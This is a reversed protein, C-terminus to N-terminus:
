RRLITIVLTMQPTPISGAPEIRWLADSSGLSLERGIMAMREETLSTEPLQRIADLLAQYHNAAISLALRVTGRLSRDAPTIMGQSLLLEGGARPVLEWIQQAVQVPDAAQLTLSPSLSVGSVRGEAQMGSLVPMTPLMRGYRVVDERAMFAPRAPAQVLPVPTPVSDEFPTDFSPANLIPTVNHEHSSWPDLRPPPAFHETQRWWVNPMMQWVVAASVVVALAAVAQLPVAGLLRRVFSRRSGHPLLEVRERVQQVFMPSADMRPFDGVWTSITHLQSLAHRCNPCSEFHHELVLRMQLPVDHDLYSSLHDHVTQCDM